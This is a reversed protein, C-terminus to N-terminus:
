MNSALGLTQHSIGICSNSSIHPMYGDYRFNMVLKIVVIVIHFTAFPLWLCFTPRHKERIESIENNISGVSPNFDLNPLVKSWMREELQLEIEGKM